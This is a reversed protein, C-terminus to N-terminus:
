TRSSFTSQQQQVFHQSFRSAYWTCTTGSEFWALEFTHRHIQLEVVQSSTKCFLCFLARVVGHKGHTFMRYCDPSPSTALLEPPHACADNLFNLFLVGGCPFVAPPDFGEPRMCVGAALRCGRGRIFLLSFRYARMREAKRCTFASFIM